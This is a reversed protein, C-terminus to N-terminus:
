NTIGKHLSAGAWILASGISITPGFQRTNYIRCAVSLTDIWTVSGLTSIIGVTFDLIVLGEASTELLM